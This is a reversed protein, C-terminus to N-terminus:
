ACCGCSPSVVSCRFSDDGTEQYPFVMESKSAGGKEFAQRGFGRFRNMKKIKQFVGESPSARSSEKRGEKEQNEAVSVHEYKVQLLCPPDGSHGDRQDHLIESVM